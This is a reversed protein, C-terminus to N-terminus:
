GKEEGLVIGVKRLTSEDIPDIAGSGLPGTNLLLNSNASVAGRLMELVENPGRHDGGFSNHGWSREQLTDCIENHKYENLKWVRGALMAAEGSLRHGLSRANRECSAFDETGSAGQKFSILCHPQLGRVLSYTEQVPFLDPRLYFPMIPDFWIGALPGYQTLLERLQAHVFRIYHDFDGSERYLYTPEAKEYAPRAVPVGEERPFFYPHRWDLAYSYYLFLGLGRDRCAEALEAILDRGARSNISSFGTERTRFLCFSDHHRATINVYRMGGDVALDAVRDADFEEATFRESLKEYESVPIREQFMVWEGRALLSYVGYHLFLGYRAEEFWALTAKRPNERFIEEYGAL